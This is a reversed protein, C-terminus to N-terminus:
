FAYWSSIFHIIEYILGSIFMFIIIYLLLVPPRWKILMLRSNSNRIALFILILIIASLGGAAGGAFSIVSTLNRIGMLFLGYPILVAVAWAGLRKVQYDWMLTEKVSESVLIFSTTITLVGFILSFLIVGNKLESKLGVLADPTTSAGTIGVVVLTFAVVVLSALITGVRVVSKVQIPNKDLLKAVIPLSGNGDLAMLMAGYPLFIYHWDLKTFNVAEISPWGKIIILVITLLLFSTMLFEVKAIAKIGSYVIVAGIVFLLTSYIFENGGIFPSFLENLFIGVIIIYALLAMINGIAKAGFALHKYKHGLYRSTYGPLRHFDPTAVIVNAYILHLFYQLVVFIMLYIFLALVGARSIVFPLGFMGVGIIYGVMVAIAQWYKSDRKVKSM